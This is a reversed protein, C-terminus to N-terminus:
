TYQNNFRLQAGRQTKNTLEREEWQAQKVKGPGREKERGGERERERKEEGGERGRREREGSRM